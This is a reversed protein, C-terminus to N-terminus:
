AVPRGACLDSEIFSQKPAGAPRALQAWRQMRSGLSPTPPHEPPGRAGSILAQSAVRAAPGQTAEPRGQGGEEDRKRKDDLQDGHGVLLRQGPRSRRAGVRRRDGGIELRYEAVGGAEAGMDIVLARGRRLRRAIMAVVLTRQAPNGGLSRRENRGVGRAQRPRSFAPAGCLRRQAQNRRRKRRGRGACGRGPAAGRRRVITRRARRGARADCKKLSSTEEEM